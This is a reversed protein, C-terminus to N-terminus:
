IREGVLLRSRVKAPTDGFQSRCFRNFHSPSAFNFEFVIDKIPIQKQCLKNKVQIAKQKLLWQSPPEGFVDLFHRYFVKESYRCFSALEKVSKSEKFKELVLMKFDLSKGILLYFFLAMSEKTYYARFLLFLEVRKIEQMHFCNLGSDFYGRLIQLFLLLPECIDESSFHYDIGQTYSSLSEFHLKDCVSPLTEFMFVISETDELIVGAWNALRPLFCMEHTGIICPPEDELSISMSGSLLFFICNKKERNSIIKEGRKLRVCKFESDAACAYQKCSLHEGTYFIDM